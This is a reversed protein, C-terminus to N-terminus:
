KKRKKKMIKMWGGSEYVALRRKKLTSEFDEWDIIELRKNRGKTFQVGKTGKVRGPKLGKRGAIKKARDVTILEMVM